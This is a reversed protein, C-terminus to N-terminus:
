YGMHALDILLSKAQGKPLHGNNMLKIILLKFAKVTDTGDNGALIEGRLINFRNLDETTDAPRPIEMGEGMVIQCKKFLSHIDRKDDEGLRQIDEFSPSRGNVMKRLINAVPVSVRLTRYSSVNSGRDTSLCVIDDNLKSLQIFYRGFPAFKKSKVGKDEVVVLGSGKVPLRSPPAEGLERPNHRASLNFLAQSRERRGAQRHSDDYMQRMGELNAAYLARVANGTIGVFISGDQNLAREALGPPVLRLGAERYLELQKKAKTVLGKNKVDEAKLDANPEPLEIPVKGRSSEVTHEIEADLERLQGEREELIEKGMILMTARHLIEDDEDKSSVMDAIRALISCLNRTGGTRAAIVTAGFQRLQESNPYNIYSQVLMRSATGQLAPSMANLKPLLVTLIHQLRGANQRLNAQVKAALEGVEGGRPDAELIGGLEESLGVQEALEDEDIGAVDMVAPGAAFHATALSAPVVSLSPKKMLARLFSLFVPSECGQKYKPVIEKVLMEMNQAVYRVEDDSLDAMTRETNPEDMMRRLESKVLVRLSAVDAMKEATSRYDTIQTAVQGTRQHLKNAQLNIDNNMIQVQLTDLYAKRYKDADSPHVCPQGSMCYTM